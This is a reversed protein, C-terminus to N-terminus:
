EAWTKGRCINRVTRNTYGYKAALAPVDTNGGQFEARLTLAKKRSEASGFNSAGKQSFGAQAPSVNRGRTNKDRMNDIHNGIRLHAPNCCAPNDCSHLVHEEKKLPTKHYCMYAYRSSVLHRPLGHCQLKRRQVVGYGYRDVTGTYPWCANAGGSKDVKSWFEKDNLIEELSPIRIRNKYVKPTSM